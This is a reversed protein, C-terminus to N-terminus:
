GVNKKELLFYGMERIDQTLIFVADIEMKNTGKKKISSQIKNTIM